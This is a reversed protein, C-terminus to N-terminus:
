ETVRSSQQRGYDDELSESRARDISRRIIDSYTSMNIQDKKYPLYFGTTNGDYDELLTLFKNNEKIIETLKFLKVITPEIFLIDFGEKNIRSVESELEEEGITYPFLLYSLKSHELYTIFNELEESFNTEDHISVVKLKVDDNTLITEM